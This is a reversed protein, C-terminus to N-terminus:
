ASGIEGSSRPRLAWFAIIAVVGGFVDLLIDWPSGTRLPNLSQNFEDTSAVVVVLAIATAFWFRKLIPQPSRTFGRCALLGLVAYETFHALKRIIGHYFTITEASAAPFFFELLPRIIRSTQGMSGQSSSLFFIVGIWILLPVYRKLWEYREENNM